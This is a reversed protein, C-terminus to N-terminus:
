SSVVGYTPSHKKEDFLAIAAAKASRKALSKPGLGKVVRATNVINLASNVGDDAALAAQDGYRHRVIDVAAEGSAKALTFLAEELAEYISVVVTVSAGGIDKVGLYAQSSVIKQTYNSNEFRATLSRAVQTTVEIASSITAKSVVLVSNTATRAKALRQLTRQSVQTTREKRKIRTTLLDKGLGIKKTTWEAARLIVNAFSAGGEVLWNALRKTTPLQRIPHSHLEELDVVRTYLKAKDAVTGCPEAAEVKANVTPLADRGPTEPQQLQQVAYDARENFVVELIEILDPEIDGNFKIGYCSDVSPFVFHVGFGRVIPIEKLLSFRFKGVTILYVDEPAYFLLLFDGSYRLQSSRRQIEYVEAAPVRLVVDCYATNEM